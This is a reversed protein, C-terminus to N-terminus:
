FRLLFKFLLFTNLMASVEIKLVSHFADAKTNDVDIAQKGNM